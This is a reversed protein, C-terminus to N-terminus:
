LNELSVKQLLDRVKTILISSQFPKIIYDDAGLKSSEIVMKSEAVATFMIIPIKSVEPVEKIRKLVELGDVIPMMIDLLILAPKQTITAHIGEFGDSATLVEFGLNSFTKKILTRIIPDDDIALLKIM